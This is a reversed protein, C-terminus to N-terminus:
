RQELKRHAKSGILTKWAEAPYQTLLANIRETGRYITGTIGGLSATGIM